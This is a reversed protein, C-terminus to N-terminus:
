RLKKRIFIHIKSGNNPDLTRPFFIMCRVQDQFLSYFSGLNRCKSSWLLISYCFFRSDTILKEVSGVSPFFGFIETEWARVLNLAHM